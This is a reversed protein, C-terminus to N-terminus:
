GPWEAREGTELYTKLVGHLKENADIFFGMLQEYEPADTYGIGYSEVRTGGEGDDTFLIVNSLNEADKKMIEPWNQSLDARLTLVREPVYNVIRLTNTHEGGVEGMYATKITGGVRLDVEAKPAAWATWGESTTYAAWVEAVPAEVTFAQALVLQGAETTIVRSADADEDQVSAMWGGCLVGAVCLGVLGLKPGFMGTGETTEAIM